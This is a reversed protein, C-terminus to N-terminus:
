EKNQSSVKRKQKTSLKTWLRASPLHLSIATTLALGTAVIYLSFGVATGVAASVWLSAATTLGRPQIGGKIFIGAGLFGIGSVIQAAIRSPDAFNMLPSIISFAASGMSICGFTRIGAEKGAIEREWGIIGGLIFAFALKLVYYLETVCNEAIYGM